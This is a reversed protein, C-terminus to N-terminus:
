GGRTKATETDPPAGTAFLLQLLLKDTLSVAQGLLADIEPLLLYRPVHGHVGSRQDHNFAEGPLVQGRNPNGTICMGVSQRLCGVWQIFLFLSM